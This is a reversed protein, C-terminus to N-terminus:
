EQLTFAVGKAEIASWCNMAIASKVPEVRMSHIANFGREQAQKKMLNIANDKSPAPDYLKNKCSVGKVENRWDVGVPGTEVIQIGDVPEVAGQYLSLGQSVDANQATTGCATILLLSACALINRTEM